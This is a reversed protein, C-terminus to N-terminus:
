PAEMMVGLEEMEVHGSIIADYLELKSGSFLYTSVANQGSGVTIILPSSEGIGLDPDAIHIGAKSIVVGMDQWDGGLPMIAARVRWVGTAKYDAGYLALIANREPIYSLTPNGADGFVPLFSRFEGDEMISSMLFFYDGDHGEILAHWVGDVVSVALNCYDGVLVTRVFAPRTPVSVDYLNYKGKAMDRVILYISGEDDVLVPYAGGELVPNGAYPDFNIGDNSTAYGIKLGTYRYFRHYTTGDFYDTQEAIHPGTAPASGGGGCSILLLILLFQTCLPRLLPRIQGFRALFSFPAVLRLAQLGKIKKTPRLPNSGRVLPNFTRKVM